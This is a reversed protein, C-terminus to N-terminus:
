AEAISASGVCVPLISFQQETTAQSEGPHRDSTKEWHTCYARLHDSHLPNGVCFPHNIGIRYTTKARTIQAVASACAGTAEIAPTTLSGDPATTAPAATVEVDSASAPFRRTM